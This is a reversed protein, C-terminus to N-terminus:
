VCRSGRTKSLRNKEAEDLMQREYLADIKSAIIIQNLSDLRKMKKATIEMDTKLKPDIIM